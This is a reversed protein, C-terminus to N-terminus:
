LTKLIVMQMRKGMASVDGQSFTIAVTPIALIIIIVIPILTWIIELLHSGEVQKPIKDEEGKKRRFKVITIILIVFVVIIVLTMIGLSFLILDYQEKAVRGAPKLASIFPEGCGSLVLVLLAFLSVLRGKQLWKKM